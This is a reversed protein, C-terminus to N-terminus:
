PFDFPTRPLDTVAVETECIGCNIMMIMVARLVSCYVIAIPPPPFNPKLDTTPLLHLIGGFQGGPHSVSTLKIGLLEWENM